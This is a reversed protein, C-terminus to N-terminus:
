CWFLATDGTVGESFGGEGFGIEVGEDPYLLGYSGVIGM